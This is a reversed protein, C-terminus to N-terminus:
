NAMVDSDQPPMPKSRLRMAHKSPSSTALTESLVSAAGVAGVAGVTSGATEVATAAVSQQEENQAASQSRLQERIANLRARNHSSFISERRQGVPSTKKGCAYAIAAVVVGTLLFCFASLLM